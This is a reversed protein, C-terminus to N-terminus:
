HVEDAPVALLQVPTLGHARLRDALEDLAPATRTADQSTVTASVATGSLRLRVQLAGLNPLDLALQTVFVPEASSSEGAAVQEREVTLLAQQGHWAPGHLAFQGDQLLAVQAAVRQASDDAAANGVAALRLTEARMEAVDRAGRAWQAVHSEFFLGSREVHHRLREAVAEIARVEGVPEMLPQTFSVQAAPADDRARHVVRTAGSGSVMVAAAATTQAAVAWTRAADAAGPAAPAVPQAASPATATAATATTSRPAALGMATLLADRLTAPITFQRPGAELRAAAQGQAVGSPLLLTVSDRAAVAARLDRALETAAGGGSSQLLPLLLRVDVAIRGVGARVDTAAGVRRATQAVLGLDM